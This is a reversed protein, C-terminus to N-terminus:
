TMKLVTIPAECDLNRSVTVIKYEDAWMVDVTNTLGIDRTKIGTLIDRVQLVDGQCTVVVGGVECGVLKVGSHDRLDAPCSSKWM